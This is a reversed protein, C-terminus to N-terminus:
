KVERLRLRRFLSHLPRHAQLLIPKHHTSELSSTEPWGRKAGGKGKPRGEGMGQGAGATARGARAVAGPIPLMARPPGPLTDCAETLAPRGPSLCLSLNRARGGEGVATPLDLGARKPVALRHGLQNGCGQALSASAPGPSVDGGGAHPLPRGPGGEM